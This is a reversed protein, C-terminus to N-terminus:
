LVDITVTVDLTVIVDFNVPSGDVTGSVTVIIENDAQLANAIANLQSSDSIEIMTNNDDYSQLDIDAVSVNINDFQFSANTVMIGAAGNYNSVQATISNIRIDQILDLANQIDPNNALDITETQTYTLPDMAGVNVNLTTNFGTNIDEETLEDLEDCSFSFIALVLLLSINKLAKM